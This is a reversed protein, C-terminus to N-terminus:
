EQRAYRVFSYILAVAIGALVFTVIIRRADSQRSITVAGMPCVTAKAGFYDKAASGDQAASLIAKLKLEALEKSVDKYSVTMILTEDSKVTVNGAYIESVGSKAKALETVTATKFFKGMTKVLREAIVTNYYSNEEDTVKVVVEERAEYYPKEIFGGYIVGALIFAALIITEVLWHKKMARFYDAFSLAKGGGQKTQEM